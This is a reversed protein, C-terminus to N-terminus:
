SPRLLLDYFAARQVRIGRISFNFFSFSVMSIIVTIIIIIIIIIIFHSDNNNNGDSINDNNNNDNSSINYHQTIMLPSFGAGGCFRTSHAERRLRSVYLDIPTGVGVVTISPYVSYICNYMVEHSCCQRM